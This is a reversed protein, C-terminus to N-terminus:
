FRTALDDILAQKAVAVTTGDAAAKLILVAKAITAFVPDDELKAKAADIAAQRRSATLDVAACSAASPPNPNTNYSYWELTDYDDGIVKCKANPDLILIRECLNNIINM